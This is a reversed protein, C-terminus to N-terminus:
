PEPTTEPAPAPAPPDPTVGVVLDAPDGALTGTQVQSAYWGLRWYYAIQGPTGTNCFTWVTACLNNATVVTPGTVNVQGTQGTGSATDSETDSSEPAAPADSPPAAYITMCDLTNLASWGDAHRGWQYGDAEAYETVVVSQGILLVGIIDGSPTERIRLPGRIVQVIGPEGDDHQCAQVPVTHTVVVMLLAACVFFLFVSVFSRLLKSEM